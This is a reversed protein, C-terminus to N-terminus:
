GYNVRPKDIDAVSKEYERLKTNEYNRVRTEERTEFNGPLKRESMTRRATGRSM